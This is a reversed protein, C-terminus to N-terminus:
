VNMFSCVNKFLTIKCSLHLELFDNAVDIYFTGSSRFNKAWRKLRKPFYAPSLVSLWKHLISSERFAREFGRDSFFNADSKLLSVSLLGVSSVESLSQTESKTWILKLVFLIYQSCLTYIIFNCFNLFYEMFVSFMLLFISYILITILGLTALHNTKLGFFGLKPLTLLAKYLFINNYKIVM